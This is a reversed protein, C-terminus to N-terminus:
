EFFLKRADDNLPSPKGTTVDVVTFLLRGDSYIKQTEQDKIIFPIVLTVEDQVSEVFTEVDLNKIGLIPRIFNIESRKLFFGVGTKALKHLSLGFNKELFTLRSEVIFDLYHKSNVHGYPDLDSFRTQAPAKYLIPKM